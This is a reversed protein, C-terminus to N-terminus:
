GGPRRTQGELARIADRARDVLPQFEPDADGWADVFRQYMARASDPQGVEQYLAGRELWSRVEYGPHNLRPIDGARDIAEYAEIARRHEGLRALVDGWAYARV